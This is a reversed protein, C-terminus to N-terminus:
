VRFRFENLKKGTKRGGYSPAGRVPLTKHIGGSYCIWLLLYLYEISNDFRHGPMALPSPQTTTTTTCSLGSSSRLTKLSPTPPPSVRGLILFHRHLIYNCDCNLVQVGRHRSESCNQHQDGASQDPSPVVKIM